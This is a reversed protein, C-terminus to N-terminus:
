ATGALGVLVAVLALFVRVRDPKMGFEVSRSLAGIRLLVCVFARRAADGWGGAEGGCGGSWSGDPLTDGARVFRQRSLVSSGTLTLLTFRWWNLPIRRGK